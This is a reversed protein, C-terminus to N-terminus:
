YTIVMAPVDVRVMPKGLAVAVAAAYDASWKPDGLLAAVQHDLWALAADDTLPAGEPVHCSFQVGRDLVANVQWKM